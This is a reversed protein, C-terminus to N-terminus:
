SPLMYSIVPVYPHCTVYIQSMGESTGLDNQTLEAIFSLYCSGITPTRGSNMLHECVTDLSASLHGLVGKSDAIRMNAQYTKFHMWEIELLSLRINHLRACM